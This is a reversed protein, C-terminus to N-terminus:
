GNWRRPPSRRGSRRCFEVAPLAFSDNGASAAARHDASDFGVEGPPEELTKLFANASQANLRDAAEIVAVKYEAENPKLHIERMLERM